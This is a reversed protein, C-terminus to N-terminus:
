SPYWCPSGCAGAADYRAVDHVVLVADALEEGGTAGLDRGFLGPEGDVSRVPADLAQTAFLNRHEGPDADLVVGSELAAVGLADGVVHEFADGAGQLEVFGFAGVQEVEDAGGAGGRVVVDGSCLLPDPWTHLLDEVRDARGGVHAVCAEVDEGGVAEALGDVRRDELKRRTGDVDGPEQVEAGLAGSNKTSQSVMALSATAM